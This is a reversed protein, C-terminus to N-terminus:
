SFYLADRRHIQRALARFISAVQPLLVHMKRFRHMTSCPTRSRNRLSLAALRDAEVWSPPPRVSLKKNIGIGNGTSTVVSKVGWLSEPSYNSQRGRDAHTASNTDPWFIYPAVANHILPISFDEKPLKCFRREGALSHPNM